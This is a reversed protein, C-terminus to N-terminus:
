PLTSLKPKYIKIMHLFCCHECNASHFIIVVLCFNLEFLIFNQMQLMNSNNLQTRWLGLMLFQLISLKTLLILSKSSKCSSIKSLLLQVCLVRRNDHYLAYKCHELSPYIQIVRGSDYMMNFIQNSISPHSFLNDFIPLSFIVIM